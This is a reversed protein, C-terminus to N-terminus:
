PALFALLCALAVTAVAVVVAGGGGGVAGGTAEWAAAV